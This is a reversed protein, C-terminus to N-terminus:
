CDRQAPAFSGPGLVAPLAAQEAQSLPGVIPVGRLSQGWRSQDDDYVARVKFGAQEAAAIVAKAQRGAGILIIERM